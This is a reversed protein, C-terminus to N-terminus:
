SIKNRWNNQSSVSLEIFWFKELGFRFATCFHFLSFNIGVKANECDIGCLLYIVFYYFRHQGGHRYVVANLPEFPAVIDFGIIKVPSFQLHPFM